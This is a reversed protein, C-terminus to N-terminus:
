WKKKMNSRSSLFCSELYGRLCLVKLPFKFSVGMSLLKCYSRFSPPFFFLCIIRFKECQKMHPIGMIRVLPIIQM